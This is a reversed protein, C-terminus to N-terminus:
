NQKKLKPINTKQNGARWGTWKNKPIELFRQNRYTVLCNYIHKVSRFRTVSLYCKFRGSALFPTLLSPSAGLERPIEELHAIIWCFHWWGATPPPRCSLSKKSKLMSGQPFWGIQRAYKEVPNTWGGVLRTTFAAFSPSSSVVQGLYLSYLSGIIIDSPNPEHQETPDGYGSSMESSLDVPHNVTLSNIGTVMGPFRFLAGRPFPFCMSLADLRPPPTTDDQTAAM